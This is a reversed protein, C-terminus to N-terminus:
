RPPQAPPDHSAARQGGCAEPWESMPATTQDLLGSWTKSCLVDGSFRGGEVARTAVERAMSAEQAFREGLADACTQLLRCSDFPRGVAAFLAEMDSKCGAPPSVLPELAAARLLVFSNQNCAAEDGREAASALGSAHNEWPFGAAAASCARALECGLLPRIPETPEAATASGAAQTGTESSRAREDCAIAACLMWMAATRRAWRGTRM